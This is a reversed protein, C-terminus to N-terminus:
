QLDKLLAGCWLKKEAIVGNLTAIKGAKRSPM